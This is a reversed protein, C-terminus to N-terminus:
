DLQGLTMVSGYTGSRPRYQRQAPAAPRSEKTPPTRPQLTGSPPEGTSERPREGRGGAYVPDPDPLPAWDADPGAGPERPETIPIHLTEGTKIMGPEKVQPNALYLEEPPVGYKRSISHLTEGQLVTHRTFRLVPIDDLPIRTLPYADKRTANLIDSFIATSLIQYELPLNATFIELAAEQSDGLMLSYYALQMAMSAKGHATDPAFSRTQAIFPLYFAPFEGPRDTRWQNSDFLLLRQMVPSDVRNFSLSQEGGTTEASYLAFVTDVIRFTPQGADAPDNMQESDFFGGSVTAAYNEEGGRTLLFSGYCCAAGGTFYRVNLTACDGHRITSNEARSVSTDCDPVRNGDFYLLLDSGSGTGDSWYRSFTIKFRGFEIDAPQEAKAQVASGSHCLAACILACVLRFLTSNRVSEGLLKRM